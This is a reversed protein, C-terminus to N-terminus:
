MIVPGWARQTGQKCAIAKSSGQAAAIHAGRRWFAPLCAAGNADSQRGNRRMADDEERRAPLPDDIELRCCGETSLRSQGGSSANQLICYSCRLHPPPRQHYVERLHCITHGGGSHCSRALIRARRPSHDKDWQGCLWAPTSWIAM